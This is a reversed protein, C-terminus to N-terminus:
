YDVEEDNEPNKTNNVFRPVTLVSNMLDENTYTPREFEMWEESGNDPKWPCISRM